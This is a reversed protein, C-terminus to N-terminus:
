HGHSCPGQHQHPDRKYGQNKIDEIEEDNGDNDHMPIFDEGHVLNRGLADKLTNTMTNQTGGIDFNVNKYQDFCKTVM